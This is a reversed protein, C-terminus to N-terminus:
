IIYIKIMKLHFSINTWKDRNSNISKLEPIQNVSWKILIDWIIIEEIKLDDMKLLSFFDNSSFISLPDQYFSVICHRQLKEYDPLNFIIKM